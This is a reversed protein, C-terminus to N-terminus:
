CFICLNGKKLYTMDIRNYKIKVKKFLILLYEKILKIFSGSIKQSSM